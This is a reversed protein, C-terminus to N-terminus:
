QLSYGAREPRGRKSTPTRREACGLEPPIGLREFVFVDNAYFLHDSRPDRFHARLDLVLGTYLDKWFPYYNWPTYLWDQVLDQTGSDQTAWARIAVFLGALELANSYRWSWDDTLGRWFASGLDM